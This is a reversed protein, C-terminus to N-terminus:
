VWCFLSEPARTAARPVNLSHDSSPQESILRLLAAGETGPIVVIERTDTASQDTCWSLSRSGRIGRGGQAM